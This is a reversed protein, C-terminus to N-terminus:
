GLRALVEQVIRLCEQLDAQEQRLRANEADLAAITQRLNDVDEQRFDGFQINENRSTIYRANSAIKDRRLQIKHELTIVGGQLIERLVANGVVFDGNRDLRPYGHQNPAAM